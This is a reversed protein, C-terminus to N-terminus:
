DIALATYLTSYLIYYVICYIICYLVTYYLIYYVTYYITNYYGSVSLRQPEAFPKLSVPLRTKVRDAFEAVEAFNHVGQYAHRMWSHRGFTEDIIYLQINLHTHTYAYVSTQTFLFCM